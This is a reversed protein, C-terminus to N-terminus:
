KINHYNIPLPYSPSPIYCEHPFHPICLFNLDSFRLPWSWSPYRHLSSLTTNLCINSIYTTSHIWRDQFPTQCQAQYHIKLNLFFLFNRSWDLLLRNKLSSGEGHLWNSWQLDMIKGKFKGCKYLKVWWHMNKQGCYNSNCNEMVKALAHLYHIRMEPSLRNNTNQAKDIPNIKVAKVTATTAHRKTCKM